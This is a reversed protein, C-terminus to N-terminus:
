LCKCTHFKENNIISQSLFNKNTEKNFNIQSSKYITFNFQNNLNFILSMPTKFNLLQNYYTLISDNKSSVLTSVVNTSDLKQSLLTSPLFLIIFNLIDIKKM